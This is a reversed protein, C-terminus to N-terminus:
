DLNFQWGKLATESLLGFIKLLSQSLNFPLLGTCDFYFFLKRGFTEYFSLVVHFHLMKLLFTFQEKQM